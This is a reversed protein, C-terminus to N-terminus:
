FTPLENGLAAFGRAVARYEQMTIGPRGSIIFDRQRLAWEHWRAFTAEVTEGLAGAM